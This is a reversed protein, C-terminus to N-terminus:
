AQFTLAAAGTLPMPESAISALGREALAVRLGPTAAAGDTFV